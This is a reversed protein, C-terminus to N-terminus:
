LVHMRDRDFRDLRYMRQGGNKCSGLISEGGAADAGAIIYTPIPVTKTGAKYPAFAANAAAEAADPTLTGATAGNPTFFNGVCFLAAFPGAKSENVKAVKEFLGDLGSEVDGCVLIKVKSM